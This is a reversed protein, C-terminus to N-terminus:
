ALSKAPSSGAFPWTIRRNTVTRAGRGLGRWVIGIGILGYRCWFVLWLALRQGTMERAILSDQVAGPKGSATQNSDRWWPPSMSRPM